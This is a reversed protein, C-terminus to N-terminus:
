RRTQEDNFHRGLAEELGSIVLERPPVGGSGYMRCSVGFDIRDRAEREIDKDAIRVSPSGLFRNAQAEEATEIPVERIEETLGLDSVTERVLRVTPEHNPCGAFYLIEIM